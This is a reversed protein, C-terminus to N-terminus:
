VNRKRGTRVKGITTSGLGLAEAIRGDTAGMARLLRIADNRQILAKAHDSRRESRLRALTQANTIM